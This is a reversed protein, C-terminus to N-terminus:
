NPKEVEQLCLAKQRARREIELDAITRTREAQSDLGEAINGKHTLVDARIKALKQRAIKMYDGLLEPRKKM